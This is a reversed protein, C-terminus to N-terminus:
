SPSSRRYAAFRRMDELYEAATRPRTLSRESHLAYRTADMAHDATKLPRESVPWESSEAAWDAGEARREHEYEYSLYEAVTHPCALADVYLGRTGDLRPSLHRTVTQIGAIVANNAAAAHSMPASLPDSRLARELVAIHEPEDPGCWWHGVGFRLTLELVAPIVTDDLAARRQYFEALQWARGDGDLGFVLAAAPNTYGWDIGGVVRAFVQGPAVARLHSM